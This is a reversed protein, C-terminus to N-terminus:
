CVYVIRSNPTCVVLTDQTQNLFGLLSVQSPHQGNRFCRRQKLVNLSCECTNHSVECKQTHCTSVRDILSDKFKHGESMLIELASKM